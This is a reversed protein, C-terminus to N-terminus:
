VREADQSKTLRAEIQRLVIASQKESESLETELWYRLAQKQDDTRCLIQKGSFNM